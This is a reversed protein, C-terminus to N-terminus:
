PEEEESDSSASSSDDSDQKLLEPFCFKCRSNYMSSDVADFVQCNRLETNAWYCGKAALHLRAVKANLTYSILFKTQRPVTKATRKLSQELTDIQKQEPVSLVPPPVLQNLEPLNAPSANSFLVAFDSLTNKWATCVDLIVEESEHKRERLHRGAREVVDEDHMLRMGEGSILARAIRVQLNAVITRFSRCYDDSGSPRWRGVMDRVAKDSEVFVSLTPIGCRGSHETFMDLLESPVAPDGTYVWKGDRVAPIRLEKLVQRSLAASQSYKMKRGTSREFDSSCSELLYPKDDGLHFKVLDLGIKAWGSNILQAELALVVPLTRIRKGPGSTKSSLLDTKIIKGVTVLLTRRIRQLDDFRLTAWHRLLMNWAQIRKFVPVSELTVYLELAVQIMLPYRAAQLAPLLTSALETALREVMKVVVLSIAPNGGEEGPVSPNNGFGGLKYLWQISQLWKQPVSPKCPEAGRVLIYDLLPGPSTPWVKSGTAILWERMIAWQRLYGGATSVRTKGLMNALVLKQDASAEALVASPTNSELLYFVLLAQVKHLKAKAILDDDVPPGLSHLSLNKRSFRGKEPLLYGVSASSGAREGKLKRERLQVETAELTRAISPSVYDGRLRKRIHSVARAAEVARDIETLIFGRAQFSAAVQLQELVQTLMAPAELEMEVLKDGELGADKLTSLVRLALQRFGDPVTNFGGDDDVVTVEDIIYEEDSPNDGFDFNGFADDGLTNDYFLSALTPGGGALVTEGEEM